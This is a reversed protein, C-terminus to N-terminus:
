PAANDWIPRGHGGGRWAAILNRSGVGVRAGIGIPCIPLHVAHDSYIYGVGLACLLRRLIFYVLSLLM